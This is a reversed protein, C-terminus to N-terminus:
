SSRMLLIVTVFACSGATLGQVIQVADWRM